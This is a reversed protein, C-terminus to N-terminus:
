KRGLDLTPYVQSFVCIKNQIRCISEWYFDKQEPHRLAACEPILYIENLTVETIKYGISTGQYSSKCDM